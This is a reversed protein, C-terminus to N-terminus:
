KVTRVAEETHFGNRFRTRMSETAKASKNRGRSLWSIVERLKPLPQGSSPRLGVQAVVKEAMVGRSHRLGPTDIRDIRIRFGGGAEVADRRAFVALLGDIQSFGVKVPDYLQKQDRIQRELSLIPSYKEM